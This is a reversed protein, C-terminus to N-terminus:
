AKNSRKMEIAQRENLLGKEESVDQGPESAGGPPKVSPECCCCLYDKLTKKGKLRRGEEM